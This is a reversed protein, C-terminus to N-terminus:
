LEKPITLSIVSNSLIASSADFHLARAGNETVLALATCEDLVMMVDSGLTAQIEIVKEPSLFHRSGDIHSQFEVGEETLTRLSALSFVQFGGSDTLIPGKWAMMRHLGGAQAIVETGPRLYLHYTNGLIM